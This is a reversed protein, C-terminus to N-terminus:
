YGFPSYGRGGQGYDYSFPFDNGFFEGSFENWLDGNYDDGSYNEGSNDNQRNSGNQSSGQNAAEEEDAKASVEHEAVTVTLDLTEGKRYVTLTVSSGVETHTIVKVLSSTSTVEKGDM